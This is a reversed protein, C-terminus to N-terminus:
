VNKNKKPQLTGKSSLLSIGKESKGLSLNFHLVKATTGKFLFCLDLFVGFFCHLYTELTTYSSKM